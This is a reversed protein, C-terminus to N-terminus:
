KKESKFLFKYIYYYIVPITLSTGLLASLAAGTIGWTAVFPVITLALGTLGVLSILTFINQKGISLFINQSFSSIARVFGFIGLVQLAPAASIWKDGLVISIIERPFIFLVIGIPLTLLIVGSLTKLFAKKLREKENSIRVYVPFTVNSIVDSVDSLPVLSIRYAMDYLGLPASGLIRGVVIDDGHQYFYNLITSVTIWKGYGLVKRFISLDFMLKPTPKVMLFSIIIEFITSILMGYVLAETKHTILILTISLLAEVLFCSTEYFFQKHFMLNKQFKIVSPNIFGRLLPVFSILILLFAADNNRFFSSIFPAATIIVLFIIIGRIISVLWSTSIYKDTDEKNQILFTNIGTETVIEAFVLVLTAIGFAGFQYPSLIRAIVVNKVLSFVRTIIRIGATWSFGKIAQRTYGM